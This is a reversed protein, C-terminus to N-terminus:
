KKPEDRTVYRLFFLGDNTIASARQNRDADKPKIKKFTILDQAELPNLHKGPQKMNIGVKRAIDRNLLYGDETYTCNGLSEAFTTPDDKFEKLCSLIECQTDTLGRYSPFPQMIRHDDKEMYVTYLPLLASLKCIMFAQYSKAHTIDFLFCYNGESDVAMEETEELSLIFDPFEGIKIDDTVYVKFKFSEYLFLPVDTSIHVVDERFNNMVKGISKRRRIGLKSDLVKNLRSEVGVANESTTLIVFSSGDKTRAFLKVHNSLAKKFKKELEELEGPTGQYFTFTHSCIPISEPM